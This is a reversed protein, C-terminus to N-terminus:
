QLVFPLNTEQTQNKYFRMTFSKMNELHGTITHKKSIKLLNHAHAHASRVQQKKLNNKQKLSIANVLGTELFQGSSVKPVNEKM